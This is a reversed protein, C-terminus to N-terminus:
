KQEEVFALFLKILNDTALKAGRLTGEHSLIESSLGAGLNTIACVSAVKLGCHRAVITEPVTSMGVAHGGMRIYMRIEAHTEFTPGSTAIYIGSSLPIDLKKAIALLKKRLELDYANDMSVFRGGYEDDNPGILPNQFTFNIHDKIVMLNGPGHKVRLSGVANTTLLIECGIKKLTRIITRISETSGVGEYYHTRGELCVVPVGKLMGLHMRKSQGELGTVYFGPLDKYDIIVANQIQDSIAGLGSGLIMGIKPKFGPAKAAIIAVCKEINAKEQQETLGGCAELAFCCMLVTFVVKKFLRQM